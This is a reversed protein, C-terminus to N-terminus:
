FINLYIIIKKNNNSFQQLLYQVESEVLEALGGGSLKCLEFSM